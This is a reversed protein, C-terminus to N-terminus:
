FSQQHTTGVQLAVFSYPPGTLSGMRLMMLQPTRPEPPNRAAALALYQTVVTTRERPIM